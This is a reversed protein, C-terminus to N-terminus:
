DCWSELLILLFAAFAWGTFGLVQELHILRSWGSTLVIVCICCGAQPLGGASLLGTKETRQFQKFSGFASRFDLGVSEEGPNAWSQQGLDEVGLGETLGAALREDFGLFLSTECCFAAPFGFLGGQGLGM